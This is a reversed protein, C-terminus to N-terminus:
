KSKGNNEGKIEIENLKRIMPVNTKSANRIALIIKEIEKNDPHNIVLYTEIRKLLMHNQLAIEKWTKEKM